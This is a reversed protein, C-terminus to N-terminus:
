MFWVCLVDIGRHWSFQFPVIWKLVRICWVSLLSMLRVLPLLVRHSWRTLDKAALERAREDLPLSPDWLLAEAIQPNKRDHGHGHGRGHGVEQIKVAESMISRKSSSRM